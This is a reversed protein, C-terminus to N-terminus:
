SLLVRGVLRAVARHVAALPSLRHPHRSLSHSM